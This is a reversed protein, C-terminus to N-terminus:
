TGRIADPLTEYRQYSTLSMGLQFASRNKGDGSPCGPWGCPSIDALVGRERDLWPLAVATAFVCAAYNAIAAAM